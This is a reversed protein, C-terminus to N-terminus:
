CKIPIVCRRVCRRCVCVHMFVCVCRKCIEGDEHGKESVNLREVGVFHRCRRAHTNITNILDFATITLNVSM